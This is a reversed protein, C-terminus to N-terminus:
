ANTIFLNNYCGRCFSKYEQDGVMIQEGTKTPVGDVFRANCIAKRGCQCIAKIEEIEDAVEFLRASAPFLRCQFDTRLGYCLVSIDFTDAIKAFQDIQAPQLFHVEDAFIVEINLGKSLMNKITEFVNDNKKVIVADVSLGIRSKVKGDNRTDVAPSFVITDHGRERYNYEARILDLSKSSGMVGHKFHIKRGL